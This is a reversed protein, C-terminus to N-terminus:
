NNVSNNIILEMMMKLHILQIQFINKTMKNKMAANLLCIDEKM